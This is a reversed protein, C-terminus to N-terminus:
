SYINKIIGTNVGKFRSYLHKLKLIRKVRPKLFAAKCVLREGQNVKGKLPPYFGYEIFCRSDRM